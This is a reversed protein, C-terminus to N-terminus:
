SHHIGLQAEASGEEKQGFELSYKPEESSMLIYVHQLKERVM